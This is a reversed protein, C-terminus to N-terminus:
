MPDVDYHLLVPKFLPNSLVKGQHYYISERVKQVSAQNEIKLMIHSIYLSQVRSVPPKGPGLVREGFSERLSLAFQRAANDVLSEDRGRLVINILRFFPPYRFVKREETQQRYFSEYDNHKVFNIIPNAPHSTQLFVTGQKNKRGARGSVQTMLQFAREYARFDPYNLLNDANLIGVVSVNDFDLGKSIMQTGILIDTLGNEFDSIIREYSKKGRTTDFDMRALSADPFIEAVEEEIRETGYGSNELTPTQCEPCVAPVNYTSGCYHCIMLRM